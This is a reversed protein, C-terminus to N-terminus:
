AGVLAEDSEFLAAVDAARRALAARQNIYGKDTIENADINPPEGLIAVRAIRTASGTQGANWTRLGQKLRELVNPESAGAPTLWVLLGIQDRDHGAVLADQVLPSCSAISAVRLAGAQVWTGTSLKFDEAVRGAFMLGKAPDGADVFRVTDGSRYYGEEDFAAATLDPRGHYGPTVNPGRVRLEYADGVPLLKAVLGPVPVGVVGSREVPYHASTALPATETAGWSSTMIVRRGLAQVSCAELREWLDQPLAAAAYFVLKLNRFFSDRLAADRELYPLLMSYGAPVNFYITPSVERLNAVTQEILGPVPKGADINLTGGNAVVFNFNHNGGFTHNWPLWDLLVPRLGRVFPWCHQQMAQNSCLMRQTNIVGKPLGTSGSTFLVKALTDPGLADFAQALTTGPVTALLAPLDDATITPVNHRDLAAFAKAFTPGNSAYILGPHVTEVIHHLKAHDQSLLSYAVSVPVVPVGATQAGLSLIAHDIGNGSLIMLPRGPGLGRELLAQGIADAQLRAAGFTLVRWAGDPGRERLMVAAPDRAAQERLLHPISPAYPGLPRASEYILTGDARRELRVLPAGLEVEAFGAKSSTSGPPM